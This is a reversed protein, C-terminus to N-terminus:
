DDPVYVYGAGRVTRIARPRAPDHEVKRRIRAIRIDISRDYPENRGDHALDLLRDRSFVRRPHYAFAELLALELKGLPIQKGHEDHLQGSGLDLVCRGFRAQKPKPARHNPNIGTSTRRLVSKIRAALERSDFPKTLYDDAGVELGVIRDMADAAASVLLVAVGPHEERVFRALSLGDEGPLDAELVMIDFRGGDTLAQRLEAAVAFEALEFSGGQLADRVAARQDPDNDVIAM